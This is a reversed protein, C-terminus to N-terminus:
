KSSQKKKKPSGNTQGTVASEKKTANLVPTWGPSVIPGIEPLLNAHQQIVLSQDGHLALNRTQNEDTAHDYLESAVTQGTKWDRWETYRFQPTRISYGMTEPAGNYYAPRPHQSLAASRVTTDSDLVPVLSVGDVESVEPLGCLQVLTPYLDLLEALADTTHGALKM